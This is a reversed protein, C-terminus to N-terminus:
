VGDFEKLQEEFWGIWDQNPALRNSAKLDEQIKLGRKLYSRRETAAMGAHTGLKACSVAVDIQWQVNAPDRKALAEGIALGNRYSALAGPGDGQAVLM